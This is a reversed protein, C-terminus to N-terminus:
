HQTRQSVHGLCIYYKVWKLATLQSKLVPATFCILLLCQIFGFPSHWEYIISSAGMHDVNSM